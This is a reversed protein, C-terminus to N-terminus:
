ALMAYAAEQGVSMYIAVRDGKRIGKHRLVNALRCVERQLERYTIQRSEDPNDGEWIIAVKDGNKEVHRDICNESANLKGGLFWAILGNAFDCDKVQNFDHIFRLKEKAMEGWFQDPNAVSKSYIEQYNEYM